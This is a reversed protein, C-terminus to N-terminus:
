YALFVKPLTDFFGEWPVFLFETSNLMVSAEDFSFLVKINQDQSEKFQPLKVLNWKDHIYKIKSQLNEKFVLVLQKTKIEASTVINNWTTDFIPNDEKLNIHAKNWGEISEFKEM